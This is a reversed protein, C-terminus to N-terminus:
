LSPRVVLSINLITAVRFRINREMSVGPMVGPVPFMRMDVGHQTRSRYGHNADAFYADTSGM